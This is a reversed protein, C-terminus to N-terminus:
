SGNLSGQYDRELLFQIKARPLHVHAKRPHEIETLPLPQKNYKSDKNEKSNEKSRILWDRKM